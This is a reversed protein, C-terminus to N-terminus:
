VLRYPGQVPFALFFSSHPENLLLDMKRVKPASADKDEIVEKRLKKMERICTELRGGAKIEDEKGNL